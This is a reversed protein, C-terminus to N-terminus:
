AIFIQSMRSLSANGEEDSSSALVTEGSSSADDDWIERLPRNRRRIFYSDSSSPGRQGGIDDLDALPVMPANGTGAGPNDSSSTDEVGNDSPSCNETDSGFSGSHEAESGSSQCRESGSESDSAQSDDHNVNNDGEALSAARCTRIITEKGWGWRNRFCCQWCVKDPSNIVIRYGKQLCISAAALRVFWNADARFVGVTLKGM